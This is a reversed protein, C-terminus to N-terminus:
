KSVSRAADVLEKIGTLGVEKRLMKLTMDSRCHFDVGYHQEITGVLTDGRKQRLKGTLDRSRLGTTGAGDHGLAAAKQHAM